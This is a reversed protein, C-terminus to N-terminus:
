RYPLGAVLGSVWKRESKKPKLGRLWCSGPFAKGQLIHWGWGPRPPAPPGQKFSWAKCRKNAQCHRCCMDPKTVNEITAQWGDYSEYNVGFEMRGCWFKSDDFGNNRLVRWPLNWDPHKVKHKPMKGLALVANIADHDSGGNGLKEASVIASGEVNSLINDIGGFVEGNFVQLLYNNLTRLTLSAANANFDGTLVVVDGPKANDTMIRILNHATAQGGCIGGSNVSLPGHHNVFFLTHGATKHQLRMWLAGRRGYYNKPMDEAVETFGHSLLKWDLRKYAMCTDYRGHFVDYEGLLGVAGLVRWPDRCEQFGMVDYPRGKMSANVLKSASDWSGKRKIFLNWWFLNYSLVKVLLPTGEPEVKWLQHPVPGMCWLNPKWGVPFEDWVADDHRHSKNTQLPRERLSAVTRSIQQIPAAPGVSRRVFAALFLLGTGLVALATGPRWSREKGQQYQSILEEEEALSEEALVDDSIGM